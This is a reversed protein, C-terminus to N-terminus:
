DLEESWPDTASRRELERDAKERIEEVTDGELILSDDSGDPLTYHIRARM